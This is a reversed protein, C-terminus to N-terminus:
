QVVIKRNVVNKKEDMIQVFYIGKAYDTMDLTLQQNNTTLQQITKGLVDTIKIVTNRQEESFSITTQSSFPNPSITISNDFSSEDIGTANLPLSLASCGATTVEVTYVGITSYVYTQSTAGAISLGNLFWQNGTAASSTLTSGAVTITPTPPIPNVLVNKIYSGNGCRNLANVQIHFMGTNTFAVSLTDIISDVGISGGHIWSYITGNYFTSHYTITDGLCVPNQGAISMPTPASTVVVTDTPGYPSVCGNNTEKVKFTYIGAAFNFAYGTNNSNAGQSNQFPLGTNYGNTIWTYTSYDIYNYPTFEPYIQDGTCFTDKIAFNSYDYTIVTPGVAHTGGITLRILSGLANDPQNTNTAVVRLYNMGLPVGELALSDRCPIHIALTTDSTATVRGFIGNAGIHAFNTSNLLQTTFVNGPNYVATSNFSHVAVTITTDDGLPSVACDTVCFHLGQNNNTKIDCQGICFPGWNTITSIPSTSVVRIKYNCGPTVNPITGPVFGELYPPLSNSYTTSSVLTGIINPIIPFNGTADSLEAYYSNGTYVGTSWFPVDIASGICVANTDYTVAPQEVTIMNACATVAFCASATGTIVPFPSTRDIRVKYCNGTTVTGPLTIPIIGSVQPYYINYIWNNTGPFTGTSTSLEITYIGDCLTDTLHWYIDANTAQCVPNPSVSDIVISVPNGGYSGTVSIDDISFSENSPPIGSGNIWRFGFRVNSKNKFAPNSIVENKWKYKNYYKPQGTQMWTGYNVSYYVEGYASTDGQCLYFFSFHVSDMGMTCIGSTLYTFNDSPNTADFNANTIGSANDHIHLYKSHPASSITGGYTSDESMTNGYTPAGSYNNTVIWNNNGIAFAPGGSNLTFTNTLEFDESYLQMTQAKMAVFNLIFATILLVIKKM